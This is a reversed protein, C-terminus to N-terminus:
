YAREVVYRCLADFDVARPGLELTQLTKCAKGAYQRAKESAYGVGDYKHIVALLIEENCGNNLEHVLTRRDDSTAQAFAHVLPLTQKGQRLDNGLPKGWLDSDASYDLYDDVIQYAMGLHKGFEALSGRRLPDTRSLIAGMEACAVFLSATKGSVARLYEEETLIRGKDQLSRVESECMSRTARCVTRLIEPELTSLALDFANTFLLDAVLIAVDDGFLANVSPRGRRLSAKDVVDDHLLSALHIMEVCAAAAITSDDLTGLVRSVLFLLRARIKKGEGEFVHQAVDQILSCDTTLSQQICRDLREIEEPFELFDTELDPGGVAAPFRDGAPRLTLVGSAAQDELVCCQNRWFGTEM